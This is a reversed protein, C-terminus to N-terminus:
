PPCISAPPAPASCQETVGCCTPGTLACGQVTIGGFSASAVVGNRGSCAAPQSSGPSVGTAQPRPCTFGAATATAAATAKSQGAPIQLLAPSVSVVSSTLTVNANAPANPLLAVCVKGSGGPPLGGWPPQVQLTATVIRYVATQTITYASGVLTKAPASWTVTLIDGTSFIPVANLRVTSTSNASGALAVSAAPAVPGTHQVSVTATLDGTFHSFFANVETAKVDVSHAPGAFDMPPATIRACGGALVALALGAAVRVTM